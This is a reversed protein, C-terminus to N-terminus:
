FKVGDQDELETVARTQGSLSTQGVTQTVTGSIM